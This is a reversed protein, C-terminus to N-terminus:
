KKRQVLEKFERGPRFNPKRKSKIIMDEGTSPNKGKKEARVKPEFVGFGVYTVKEGENVKEKIINKELEIIAQIDKRKFKGDFKEYIENIM